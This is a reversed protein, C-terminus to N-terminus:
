IWAIMSVFSPMCSRHPMGATTLQRLYNGDHGLSTVEQHLQEYSVDSKTKFRRIEHDENSIHLTAKITVDFSEDSNAM